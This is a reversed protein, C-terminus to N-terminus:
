KKRISRILDAALIALGGALCLLAMAPLFLGLADLSNRWIGLDGFSGAALVAACLYRAIAFLAALVWLTCTYKTLRNEM